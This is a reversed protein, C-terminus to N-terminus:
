EHGHFMIDQTIIEIISQLANIIQSKYIDDDDHDGLQWCVLTLVQIHALASWSPFLFNFFFSRM